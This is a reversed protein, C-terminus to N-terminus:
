TEFCSLSKNEWDFDAYAIDGGLKVKLHSTPRKHGYLPALGFLIRIISFMDKQPLLPIQQFTQFLLHPSLTGAAMPLLILQKEEM